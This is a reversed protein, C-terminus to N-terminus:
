HIFGLRKLSAAPEDDQFRRLAAKERGDDLAVGFPYASYGFLPALKAFETSVVAKLGSDALFGGAWQPSEVPVAVVRTEGWQYQSMRRASELCHTCAPNFFFLFVRGNAISYPRGDVQITDPARTGSQRVTEVGFSVTAFVAVAGLLVLAGRLGQPKKSWVGACVALVLMVTDGIFFAPGVARKIWPFCSCDEGQLATYNMGVYVIFAVLLASTLIAGWRRFRPVLIFVGGVTEAIGFAIAAFQSLSEPVRAQAM